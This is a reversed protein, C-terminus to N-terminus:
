TVTIAKAIIDATTTQGAALSYNSALGGNAGDSLTVTDVTVTKQFSGALKANLYLGGDHQKRM